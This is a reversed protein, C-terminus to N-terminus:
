LLGAEKKAMRIGRYARDLPVKLLTALDLATESESKEGRFMKRMEEMCLKIEDADAHRRGRYRLIYQCAKIIAQEASRERM